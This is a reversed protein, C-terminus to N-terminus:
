DTGFDSPAINLAFVPMAVALIGSDLGKSLYLFGFSLSRSRAMWSLLERYHTLVLLGWRRCSFFACPSLAISLIHFFRLPLTFVLFALFLFVGLDISLHHHQAPFPFPLQGEMPDFLSVFFLLVLHPPSLYLTRRSPL